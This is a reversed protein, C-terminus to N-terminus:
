TDSKENDLQKSHLTQSCDILDKLDNDYLERIRELISQEIPNCSELIFTLKEM